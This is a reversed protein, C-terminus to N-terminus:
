KTSFFLRIRRGLVLGLVLVDRGQGTQIQQLLDVLRVVLVWWCIAGNEAVDCLGPPGCDFPRQLSGLWRFLSLGALTQQVM